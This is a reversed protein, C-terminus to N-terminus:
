ASDVIHQYGQKDGQYDDLTLRYGISVQNDRKSQEKNFGDIYKNLGESAQNFSLM